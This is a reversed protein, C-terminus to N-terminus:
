DKSCKKAASKEYTIRCYTNVAFSNGEFWFFHEFTNLFTWACGTFDHSNWVFARPLSEASAKRAENWWWITEICWRM